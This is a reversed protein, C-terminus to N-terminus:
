EGSSVVANGTGASASLQQIAVRTSIILHENQDQSGSLITMKRTYHQQGAEDCRSTASSWKAWEGRSRNIAAPADLEVAPVIRRM